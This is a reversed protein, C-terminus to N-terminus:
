VQLGAGAEVAHASVHAALLPFRATAGCPSCAASASHRLDPNSPARVPKPHVQQTAYEPRQVSPATAAEVANAHPHCSLVQTVLTM